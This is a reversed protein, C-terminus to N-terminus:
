NPKPWPPTPNDPIVRGSARLKQRCRPCLVYEGDTTSVRGQADEMLCGKTECHPLNLTHGIEHVATKAFRQKAKATIKNQIRARRISIVCSSGDMSGLGLVGWHPSRENAHYIDVATLGLIKEAQTPKKQALLELIGSASYRNRPKFYLAKPLPINPLMIIKVGYFTVLARRVLEVTDAPLSKGLPQIAVTWQDTVPPSPPVLDSQNVLKQTEVEGALPRQSDTSCGCLAFFMLSVLCRM